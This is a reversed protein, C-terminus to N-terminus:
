SNRDRDIYSGALFEFSLPKVDMICSNENEVNFVAENLEISSEMYDKLESYLQTEVISEL